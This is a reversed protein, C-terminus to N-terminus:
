HTEPKPETRLKRVFPALWRECVEKAGLNSLHNIDRFSMEPHDRLDLYSVENEEAFQLVRRDWQPASKRELERMEATVPLDLLVM